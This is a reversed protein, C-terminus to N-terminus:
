DVVDRSNYINDRFLAENPLNIGEQSRSLFEAWRKNWEEDSLTPVSLTAREEAEKLRQLLQRYDEIDLLVAVPKGEADIVFRERM